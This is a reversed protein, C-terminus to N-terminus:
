CVLCELVAERGNGTVLEMSKQSQSLCLGPDRIMQRMANCYSEPTTIAADGLNTLVARRALYETVPRQNEATIVVISPLGLCCREWVTSGGAGVALDARAILEAMNSVQCYFTANPMTACSKKIEERYPNSIGVVVDVAIDQRKLLRLAQLAKATENSPDSGGFFFLIRRIRGDRLRLVRRVESFEARLLAYGTGFLKICDDPVLGDYRHEMDEYLNQDLLLDCDHPRNALDDIVMLKKVFRRLIVEWQEDICYQDVILWDVGHKIDVLIEKSETADHRWDFGTSSPTLRHVKFGNQELYLNLNGLVEQCLFAVRAGKERLAVALVLCRMVHGTGIEISADVRFVVNM